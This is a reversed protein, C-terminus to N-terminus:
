GRREIWYICVCALAVGGLAMWFGNWGMSWAMFATVFVAAIVGRILKYRPSQDSLLTRLLTIV